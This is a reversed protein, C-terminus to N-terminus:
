LSHVNGSLRKIIPKLIPYLPRLIFYCGVTVYVLFNHLYNIKQFILHKYKEQNNIIYEPFKGKRIKVPVFRYDKRDFLDYGNKIKDFIKDNVFNNNNYEQHAFSKIKYKIMEFGGLYSFHWGGKKIMGDNKGDRIKQPTWKGNMYTSFTIIKTMYFYKKIIKQYNLFYYFFVLRLCFLGSDYERNKYKVIEDPNPIEDIDSIIIVDNEQCHKIGEHIKNRQYFEMDWASKYELVYDTIKIYIIKELFPKYREKNEEFFFFKKENSFTRDAEVLVFKDVVPSLINLRIELLDLENFFIFCDYVM